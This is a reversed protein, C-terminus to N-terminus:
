PPTLGRNCRQAVDCTSSLHFACFRVCVHAICSLGGTAPKRAMNWQQHNKGYGHRPEENILALLALRLEGQGFMRGRRRRRRSGGMGDDWDGSWNSGWNGGSAAMMAMMPGWNNWGNKRSYKRHKHWTM